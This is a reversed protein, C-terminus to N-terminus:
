CSPACGPPSPDRESPENLVRRPADPDPDRLDLAAIAVSLALALVLIRLLLGFLNVRGSV